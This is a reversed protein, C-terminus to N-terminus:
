SLCYVVTVATVKDQAARYVSVSVDYISTRQSFTASSMGPHEDVAYGCQKQTDGEVGVAELTSRPPMLKDTYFQCVAKFSSPSTFTLIQLNGQPNALHPAGGAMAGQGRIKDPLLLSELVPPQHNAYFEGSTPQSSNQSVIIPPSTRSIPAATLSLSAGGVALVTAAFAAAYKVKIIKMTHSVGKSLLLVNATPGTSIAQLTGQTITEAAHAPIPHAAETTLFGTLVVSTVAAGHSSLYRRLKELARTVRMRAADESVGLLAGTETLTHGELFRLLVADRDAPKLSSLAANLLPEITNWESAPVTPAHITEQMVAEERRTRRAEQKRVDKAVFRATQFLWGALSPGARLTKAKRALLLFVVQAADEALTDSGLERRCTRYVLPLHRAIIQSFAADSGTRAYHTLLQDDQM